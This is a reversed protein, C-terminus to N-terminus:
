ALAIMTVVGAVLGTVISLARRSAGSPETSPSPGFGTASTSGGSSSGYSSSPSEPSWVARSPSPSPSPARGGVGVSPPKAPAAALSSHGVVRVMMRQGAECHGPVGSVFYFFGTRDFKFKTDGDAFRTVPTVTSCMKYDDHNVLLVSDKAEYKFDLIDGVQFRNRKAWHNYTETGNVAPVAWGRGNGVSYVVPMSSASSVSPALLIYCCAAAAALVVVSAM